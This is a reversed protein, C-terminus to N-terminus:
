LLGSRQRVARRAGQSLAYYAVGGVLMGAVADSFWPATAHVLVAACAGVAWAAFASGRFNPLDDEYSYHRVFIQDVIIVAGIPPVLVGLLNLWNLFLSWVGAVALLGGLLGLLVTMTRMKRNAIRGWGVAGNYLCHTCVSGLNVFVFILAIASLVGGHSTLVSMFNGGETAPAAAAGACVIVIGVVQAVMNAFPFATLTAYVASKGDKSWRTFDATMTGSDAFTAVVLTVAGGFSMMSNVGLGDYVLVGALSHASGILYVAACGLILYLPAAIMGVISLARIGIFTVATYLMTAAVITVTENWGFSAHVTTGTLGTQFAFWGVVVSALFGSTIAYGKKGFTREAQLAFSRGTNGAIFSLTGVYALLIANGILIALLARAFGLNYAIIGAFVANTIIMPFGFWVAAVSSLRHRHSLPVPQHEFEEDLGHQETSSTM